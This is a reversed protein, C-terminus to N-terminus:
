SANGFDFYRISAPLMPNVAEMCEIRATILNKTVNDGDQEFFEVKLGEVEIREIFTQDIILGKDDTVWTAAIVPVGAITIVGNSTGLAGGSGQYNGTTYLLKQLRALQLHGVLIYSANFNANHQYAVADILTKIDETEAGVSTAIGSTGTVDAYFQTNEKMFFDRLLLRPLTNQFWPLNKTMQKAFRAYGAIYSNVTEVETFDYDIQTKSAGPTSQRSISGESGSERYHVYTGTASTTTPLLDRFNISHPPLIVPSSNYTNVGSGTLNAATTMDGVAKLEMSFKDGKRVRSIDNWNTEVAEAFAQGFSKKEAAGSNTNKSNAILKDLADQNAKKDAEDQKIYAKVESLSGKVDEISANVSKLDIANIKDELSKVEKAIEAKAKETAAAELQTKLTELQAKLELENM